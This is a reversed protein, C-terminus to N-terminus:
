YMGRGIATSINNAEIISNQEERHGNQDLHRHLVEPPAENTLAKHIIGGQHPSRYTTAAKISQRLIHKRKNSM